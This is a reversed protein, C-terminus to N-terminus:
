NRVVQNRYSRDGVRKDANVTNHMHVATGTLYQLARTQSLGVAALEIQKFM